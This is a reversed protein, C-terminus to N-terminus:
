KPICAEILMIRHICSVIQVHQGQDRGMFYYLIHIFNSHHLYALILPRQTYLANLIPTNQTIDLEAKEPFMRFSSPRSGVDVSLSMSM